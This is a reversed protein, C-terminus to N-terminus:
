GAYYKHKTQPRIIANGIFKGRTKHSNGTVPFENELTIFAKMMGSIHKNFGKIGELEHISVLAGTKTTYDILAKIQLDDLFFLRSVENKDGSNIRVPNEYLSNLYETFIAANEYDTDDSALEEAINGITESIDAEQGSLIITLFSLLMAYSYKKIM